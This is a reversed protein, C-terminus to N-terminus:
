LLGSFSVRRMKESGVQNSGRGHWPAAAGFTRMVGYLSASRLLFALWAPPPWPRGRSFVREDTGMGAAFIPFRGKGSGLRSARATSATSSRLRSRTVQHLRHGGKRDGAKGQCPPARPCGRLRRGQEGAQHIRLSPFGGVSRWCVALVDVARVSM